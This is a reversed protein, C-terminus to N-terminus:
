RPAEVHLLGDRGFDVVVFYPPVTLTYTDSWGPRAEPAIKPVTQQDSILYESYGWVLWHNPPKNSLVVIEIGLPTTTTKSRAM